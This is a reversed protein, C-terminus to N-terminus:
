PAAQADVTAGAGIADEVTLFVAVGPKELKLDKFGTQALGDLHLLRGAERRAFVPFSLPVTVGAVDLSGHATVTVGAADLQQLSFPEVSDITFVIRPHEVAHLVSYVKSDRGGNGSKLTGAEIDLEGSVTPTVGEALRIVGSIAGKTGHVHVPAGVSHALVEFRASSTASLVAYQTGAAAAPAAGKDARAQGALAGCIMGAALLLATKRPTLTM